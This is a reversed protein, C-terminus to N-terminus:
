TLAAKVKHELREDQRKAWATMRALTKARNEQGMGALAALIVAAVAAREYLRRSRLM